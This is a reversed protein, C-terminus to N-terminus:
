SRQLVERCSNSFASIVGGLILLLAGKEVDNKFMGNRTEELYCRLYRVLHPQLSVHDQLKDRRRWLTREKVFSQYCVEWAVRPITCGWGHLCIKWILYALYLSLHQIESCFDATFEQLFQVLYPQQRLFRKAEETMQAESYRNLQGCVKEVAEVPIADM